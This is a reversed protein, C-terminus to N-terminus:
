GQGFSLTGLGVLWGVMGLHHLHMETWPVLSTSTDPLTPKLM